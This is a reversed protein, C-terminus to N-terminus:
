RGIGLLMGTGTGYNSIATAMPIRTLRGEKELHNLCREFSDVSNKDATFAPLSIVQKKLWSYPLVDRHKVISANFGAAKRKSASMNFVEDVRRMIENEQKSQGASMEGADFKALLDEDMSEVFAIAWQAHEETVVPNNMNAGIAFLASLRLAKLGARNMLQRLHEEKGALSAMRKYQQYTMLTTKAESSSGVEIFENSVALIDCKTFLDLLDDVLDQPMEMGVNENPHTSVSSAASNLICFRQLFGDQIEAPTMQSYLRESVTEGAVVLCPSEVPEEDAEDKNRAKSRRQLTAGKASRSYLLLMQQKLSEQHPAVNQGCMRKFTIGFESFYTCVRNRRVMLDELGEGSAAAGSLLKAFNGVNYANAKSITNLIKSIGNQYEDKGWSTEAVLIMWLNLGSKTAIQYNRGAVTSMTAIAVALSCEQLPYLSQKWHWDAVRKLLGEPLSDIINREGLKQFGEIEEKEPPSEAEFFGAVHEQKGRVKKLTRNIYKDNARYPRCLASLRFLRRVQENSNTSDALHGILAHDSESHDTGANGEWLAQFGHFRKRAKELVVEDEETASEEVLNTTSPAHDKSLWDYISQLTQPEADEIQERGEIVDGTMLCLRSTQFMGVAPSSPHKGEGEFSGRTIIHTGQGSVSRQAYGAIAELIEPHDEDLDVFVFPDDHSFAYGVYGRKGDVVDKTAEEFTRWTEPNTSSAKACNGAIYPIKKGEPTIDFTVWQVRERMELPINEFSM